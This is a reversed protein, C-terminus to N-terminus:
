RWERRRPLNHDAIDCLWRLQDFTIFTDLGHENARLLMAHTFEEAGECHAQSKADLCVQLFEQKTAYWDAAITKLRDAM